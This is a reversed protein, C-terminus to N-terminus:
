TLVESVSGRWKNGFADIAQAHTIKRPNTAAALKRETEEVGRLDWSHKLSEGDALVKPLRTSSDRDFGNSYVWEGRDDVFDIRHIEIPRPRENVVWVEVAPQYEHTGVEIVGVDCRVTVKRENMRRAQYVGHLFVAASIGAACIAVILSADDGDQTHQSADAGAKAATALTPIM